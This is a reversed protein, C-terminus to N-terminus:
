NSTSCVNDLEKNRLMKWWDTVEERKSGFNEEIGRVREVQTEHM